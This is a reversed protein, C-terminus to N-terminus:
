NSQIEVDIKCNIINTDIKAEVVEVIFTKSLKKQIGYKTNRVFVEVTDCSRVALSFCPASFLSFFIHLVLPFSTINGSM